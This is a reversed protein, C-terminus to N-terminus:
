RERAAISQREHVSKRQREIIWSEEGKKGNSVFFSAFREV